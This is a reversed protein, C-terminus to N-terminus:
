PESPFERLSKHTPKERHNSRQCTPGFSNIDKAADGENRTLSTRETATHRQAGEDVQPQPVSEWTVVLTEHHTVLQTHVLKAMGSVALTETPKIQREDPQGTQHTSKAFAIVVHKPGFYAGVAM